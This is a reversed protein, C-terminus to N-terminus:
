ERLDVERKVYGSARGLIELRGGFLSFQSCVALSRENEEGEQQITSARAQAMFGGGSMGGEKALEDAEENGEPINKLSRCKGGRRRRVIHRSTDEIFIEKSRLCHLEEWVGIWLDADGASPGTCKM